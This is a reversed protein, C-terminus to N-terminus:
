SMDMWDPESDVGVPESGPGYNKNPGISSSPMAPGFAIDSQELKPRIRGQEPNTGSATAPNKAAEFGQRRKEIIEVFWRSSRENGFQERLRKVRNMRKRPLTIGPDQEYRRLDEIANKKRTKQRRALKAARRPDLMGIKAKAARKIKGESDQIKTLPSDESNEKSTERQLKVVAGMRWLSMHQRRDFNLKVLELDKNAQEEDVGTFFPRAPIKGKLVDKPVNKWHRLHRHLHQTSVDITAGILDVSTDTLSKPAKAKSTEDDLNMHGLARELAQTGPKQGLNKQRRDGHSCSTPLHTPSETTKQDYTWREKFSITAILAAQHKPPREHQPVPNTPIDQDKHATRAQRCPQEFPIGGAEDHHEGLEEIMDDSVDSSRISEANSASEDVVGRWCQSIEKLQDYVSTRATTKLDGTAKAAKM